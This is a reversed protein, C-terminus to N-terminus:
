NTKLHYYLEIERIMGNSVHEERCPFATQYIPNDRHMVADVEIIPHPAVHGYYGM